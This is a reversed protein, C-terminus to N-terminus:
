APQERFRHLLSESGRALIGVDAGVAVVLAGLDLWRRAYDELPAFVGPAKGARIIREIAEDIRSVIGPSTTEGVHGLAAHLDAPGLFLADVGEVAAIEELNELGIETEIQVMVCIQDAAKVAYGDIRGFGSARTTLAVGRVGEPPYRTNDVAAKAEAATQVYPILLSKAGIDLYRKMTVTDNWPVRVVASTPYPEIAQLQSLVNALDAPSHETDILIWDYGAGAIVETTYASALSAWLGLQVRGQAIEEKFVNHHREGTM